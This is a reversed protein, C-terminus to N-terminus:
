RTGRRFPHEFSLYLFVADNGASPGVGIPFAVGPVIQLGSTFNHAWRIGPSVLLGDSAATRGPGTVAEDRTWVVEVLFNFTPRAL